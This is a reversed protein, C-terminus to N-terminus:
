GGIGIQQSFADWARFQVNDLSTPMAVEDFKMFLCAANHVIKQRAMRQYIKGVLDAIDNQAFRLIRM